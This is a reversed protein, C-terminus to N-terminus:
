HSLGAKVAVSIASADLAADWVLEHEVNKKVESDSIM